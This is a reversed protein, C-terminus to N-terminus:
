RLVWSLPITSLKTLGRKTDLHSTCVLGVIDIRQCEEAGTRLFSSISLFCLPVAKLM